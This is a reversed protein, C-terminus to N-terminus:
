KHMEQEPPKEPTVQLDNAPSVGAAAAIDRITVGDPGRDGFLRLAEDRNRARAM